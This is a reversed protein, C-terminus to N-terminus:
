TVHFCDVHLFRYAPLHSLNTTINFNRLTRPILQFPIFCVVQDLPRRGTFSGRDTRDSEEVGHLLALELNTYYASVGTLDM